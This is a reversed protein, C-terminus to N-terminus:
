RVVLSRVGRCWWLPTRLARGGTPVGGSQVAAAGLRCPLWSRAQHLLRELDAVRVSGDHHKDAERFLRKALEDIAGMDPWGVAVQRVLAASKRRQKQWQPMTVVHDPLHHHPGRGGEREEVSGPRQLPPAPPAPAVVEGGDGGDHGGELVM